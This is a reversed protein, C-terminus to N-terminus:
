VGAPARQDAQRLHAM